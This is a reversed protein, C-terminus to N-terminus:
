AKAPAPGPVVGEGLGDGLAELYDDLTSTYGFVFRALARMPALKIEGRETVTVRAGGEEPAIEWTWTGAYPLRPDAIRTVMRRPPESVEIELPMSGKGELAYVRHGERDALRKVGSVEPAWRAYGPVDSVVAWVAKPHSTFHASRAAVHELPIVMGIGWALAVLSLLAVLLTLLFKM